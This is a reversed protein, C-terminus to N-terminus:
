IYYIIVKHVYMPSKYLNIHSTRKRKFSDTSIVFIDRGKCHQGNIGGVDIVIPGFKELLELCIISSSEAYMGIPFTYSFKGRYNNNNHRVIPNKIDSMIGNYIDKMSKGRYNNNNHEVHPNNVDNMIGDYIDKRSKRILDDQIQKQGPLCLELCLAKNFTDPFNDM